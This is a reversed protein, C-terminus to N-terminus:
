HTSKENKDKTREKERLGTFDNEMIDAKEQLSDDAM